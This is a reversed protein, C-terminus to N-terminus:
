SKVILERKILAVIEIVLRPLRSEWDIGSHGYLGGVVFLCLFLQARGQWDLRAAVRRMKGIAYVFDASLFNVGYAYV